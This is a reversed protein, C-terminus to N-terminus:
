HRSIHMRSSSRSQEALRSLGVSNIIALVSVFLLWTGGAIVFWRRRQPENGPFPIQSTTM